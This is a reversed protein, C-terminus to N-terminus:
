AWLLIDYFGAQLVRKPVGSEDSQQEEVGGQSSFVKEHIRCLELVAFSDLSLVSLWSVKSAYLLCFGLTICRKSPCRSRIPQCKRTFGRIFGGCILQFM